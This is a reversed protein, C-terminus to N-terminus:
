KNTIVSNAIINSWDKYLEKSKDIHMAPKFKKSKINLKKLENITFLGMGIGALMAAGKATSEVYQPRIVPVQLIDAQFQILWNNSSAGGDVRLEKLKIGSDKKMADFVDRTQYAISELAARVIHNKNTGRTLGTIMGRAYMDWHPAGLGTFAPIFYVGGNDKLSLAMTESEQSSNIIELEDRLWQIVAGAIFVSGEFAYEIKNDIGWAITTLLKSPSSIFQDGINMLMFCGTGYTNKADGKEFCGQGFLAAQQDGAVGRIPIQIGEIEANGFDDASNKLQPLMSAPINLEKLLKDDWVLSKINFLMTRSANSFDTAHIKGDTLKWILWTDITGCLLEGNEAKERAGKVNDLIWKIKTASFYADVVLGTNERIYNELGKQKLEECINATRRDQWVIANYIPIGSNKDWVVTTERQNTIGISVINSISIKSKKLVEKITFLQSKWIEEPDHEVWGPKPFIQTIKKQSKGIEFLNENFIIARSSTTGQDISLLYKM